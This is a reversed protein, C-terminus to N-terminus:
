KQLREIRLIDSWLEGREQVVLQLSEVVVECRQVISRLREKNTKVTEFASHIVELSAVIPSIFSM